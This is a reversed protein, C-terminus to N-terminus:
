GTTHNSIGTTSGKVGMLKKLGHRLYSLSIKCPLEHAMKGQEFINLNKGGRRRRAHNLAPDAASM